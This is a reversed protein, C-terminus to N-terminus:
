VVAAGCGARSVIMNSIFTWFDGTVDYAEASRLRNAGDFGGMLYIKGDYVATGPWARPTNMPKLTVWQNTLTNFREALDFYQDTHKYRGGFAYIFEDICVLSLGSRAKEMESVFSWEETSPDYCEVSARDMHLNKDYGGAVYIKGDCVCIGAGARKRKMSPGFWWMEKQTDYIEMINYSCSRDEGGIAYVHRGIGTVAVFSRAVKMEQLPLWERRVPDYCEMRRLYLTDEQTDALACEGGLAYIMGNLSCAGVATRAINMNCVTNWQDLLFDYRETSKLQCDTGNRGGLVYICLPQARPTIHQLVSGDHLATIAKSILLQCKPCNKVFELQVVVNELYSLELLPLKVYQLVNCAFHLRNAPDWQLWTSVAEMVQQENLVQLKDSKLLMVLRDESLQVFEECHMVELFNQYIFQQAASELEGCMYMDALFQIGLCNSATLQLQLFSACMKRLSHLGLLSAGQLIGQVNEVTIEISSTYMFDILLEMAWSELGKIEVTTKESELMGNTFMACLYPSCGCVVVKHVIFDKEEVTLIVDCLLKRLRLENMVKFACQSQNSVTFTRSEIM